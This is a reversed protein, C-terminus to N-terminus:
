EVRKVLCNYCGPKANHIHLYEISTNDFMRQITERLGGGKVVHAEIMMAEKNYGRVSLLRHNLMLPIENVEPTSTEAMKRVYIPGTAHYPSAVNHYTYSLLLVEEDIEADALSVRCPYGPKEKVLMKRIGFQQLEHDTMDFFQRFQQKDLAVIQFNHKM